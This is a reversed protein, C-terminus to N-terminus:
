LTDADRVADVNGPFERDTPGCSAVGSLLWGMPGPDGIGGDTDHWCGSQSYFLTRPGLPVRRGSEVTPLELALQGCIARWQRASERVQAEKDRKMAYLHRSPAPAAAERQLEQYLFYYFM